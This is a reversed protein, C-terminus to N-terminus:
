VEQFLCHSTSELSQLLHTTEDYRGRPRSLPEKCVLNRQELLNAEVQELQKAEELVCHSLARRVVIDIRPM